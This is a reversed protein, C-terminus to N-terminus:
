SARELVHACAAVIDNEDDPHALLITRAADELSQGSGIRGALERTYRHAAFSKSASPLGPGSGSTESTQAASPAGLPQMAQNAYLEDATPGAHDLDFYQRAENPTEIGVQVLTSHAKARAELDGRMVEAVDFKMKKTGDFERGVHWDFASEIFEIRPAITDRYLSRMQESINSFTAHDLIGVLTPPLDYVACVEERNLKRSDIYQMEDASMQFQQVKTGNELILTGGANSSGAHMSKFQERLRTIGVQDLKGDVELAISPRGMNKFWTAAVRRAGDENLLTSRLPELRSVGRMTMDPNYRRFPVVNDESMLESPQGMFRYVVEGFEDRFIQTLAPHIPVFGDVVGDDDRSKLLFAEGYVEITSTLWMWFAYPDLTPCPNALLKAYDSSLDLMDGDGRTPDVDWVNVGLRSISNAIKDVVTAVWPQSLYIQGYTAFRTELEVGTRPVFFGNFFLPATEAFAQPAIPQNLGNALIM